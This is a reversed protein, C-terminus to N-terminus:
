AQGEAPEDVPPLTHGLWNEIGTFGVLGDRPLTRAIAVDIRTDSVIELRQDDYEARRAKNAYEDIRGFVPVPWQEPRWGDAHGIVLWDGRRLGLDGFMAVLISDATRLHNLAEAAPVTAHRRGFFYGLAIGRGDMRALMGIGFGGNPLPV